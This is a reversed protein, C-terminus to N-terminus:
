RRHRRRLALAGTLGLGLLALTAPEAVVSPAFALGHIGPLNSIFPTLAGSAPDVFAIENLSGISAILSGPTLGSLAFNLVQNGNSETAYLTGSRATLYATDDLGSVPNGGSTLPVVRIMQGVTGPANVFVLTGQDGGSQVLDLGNPAIKLSDSDFATLGTQGLTLVDTVQLPNTGPVLQRVIPDGAVAPNTYSLFTGNKTFAAEDYGNATSNMAYSVATVANTAANIANVSSNGDQNQLAWVTNTAKNFNLGDTYGKFVFTQQVTGDTGYRVVTSNGTPETGDSTTGGPYAVWVSGAALLISDPASAGAPPTALVAPTVVPAASAATAALIAASALLVSSSRM